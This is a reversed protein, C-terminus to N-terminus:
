ISYVPVKGKGKGIFLSPFFRWNFLDPLTSGNAALHSHHLLVSPGLVAEFDRASVQL